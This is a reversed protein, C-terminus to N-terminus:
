HGQENPVNELEGLDAGEAELVALKRAERAEAAHRELVPVQLFFRNSQSTRRRRKIM